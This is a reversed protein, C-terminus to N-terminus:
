RLNFKETKEIFKMESKRKSQKALLKGDEKDNKQLIKQRKGEREYRM